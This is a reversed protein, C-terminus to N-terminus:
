KIPYKKLLNETLFYLIKYIFIKVKWASQFIQIGSLNNYVIM